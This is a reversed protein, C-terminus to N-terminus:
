LVLLAVASPPAATLRSVITARQLAIKSSTSFRRKCRLHPARRGRTVLLLNPRRSLSTCFARVGLGRGPHSLPISSGEGLIPSPNPILAADSGLRKAGRVSEECPPEKPNRPTSLRLGFCTTPRTPAAQLRVYVPRGKRFPFGVIACSCAAGVTLKTKPYEGANNAFLGQALWGGQFGSSGVHDM